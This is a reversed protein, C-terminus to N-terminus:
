HINIIAREKWNRSNINFACTVEVERFETVDIERKEDKSLVKNEGAQKYKTSITRKWDPVYIKVKVESDKQIAELIIGKFVNNDTSVQM